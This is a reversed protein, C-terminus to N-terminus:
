NFVKSILDLIENSHFGWIEDDIFMFGVCFIFGLFYFVFNGIGVVCVWFNM